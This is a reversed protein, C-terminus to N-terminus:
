TTQVKPAKFKAQNIWELRQIKSTYPNKDIEQMYAM